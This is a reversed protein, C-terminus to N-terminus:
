AGLAACLDVATGSFTARIFGGDPAYWETAHGSLQYLGPALDSDDGPYYWAIFDNGSYDVRLSGDAAFVLTGMVGGRFSYTAGSRVNTVLSVGSGRSLYREDGDPAPVFATDRSRLTLNEFRIADECVEGAAFEIPPYASPYHQPPAALVTPAAALSLAVVIAGAAAARFRRGTVSVPVSFSM